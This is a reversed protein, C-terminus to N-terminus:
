NEKLEAIVVDIIEPIKRKVEETLETGWGIDKPQIGFIVIESPAKGLFKALEIADILDVDHLSVMPSKAERELEDPTFRWITGPEAGADCADIIILKHSKEMIHILDLGGTGGDVLVVQAPLDVQRMEEIVKVGVGEDKRLINGVGMITVKSKEEAM